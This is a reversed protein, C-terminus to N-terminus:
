AVGSGAPSVGRVAGQRQLQEVREDSLGLVGSLVEVTHEGLRPIRPAAEREPVRDMKIPNGVLRTTGAVPDDVEVLMERAAVQPCELVDAATNVPAAPVGRALLLETCEKKTRGQSWARVVPAVLEDHRASRDRGTQLRPDDRLDPRKLVECLAAWQPETLVAVVVYGDTTEFPGWPSQLLYQGPGLLEGVASYAALALDNMFVSGDYMAIDVRRGEGTAERDRLALLTGSLALTGAFVDAMAFGMWVPPGEGDGALHTLGAMAEAIIAYAPRDRFPSDGLDDHGFGSVSTYILRPNLERMREYDFGLRRLVGPRFNEVLVDAGRILEALVEQGGSSKLDVAVSRKGRSFRLFNLNTEGEASRIPYGSHRYPEGHPPEVKIVDAGFDAMLMTTVAGSVVQTLDVVRVGDLSRRPMAPVSM